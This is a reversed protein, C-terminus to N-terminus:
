VPRRATVVKPKRGPSKPWGETLYKAILRVLPNWAGPLKSDFNETLARIDDAFYPVGLDEYFQRNNIYWPAGTAIRLCKSEIM